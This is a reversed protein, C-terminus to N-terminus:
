YPPMVKRLIRLLVESTVSLILAILTLIDNFKGGLNYQTVLQIVLGLMLLRKFWNYIGDFVKIYSREYFEEIIGKQLDGLAVIVAFINISSIWATDDQIFLRAVILVVLLVFLIESYSKKDM